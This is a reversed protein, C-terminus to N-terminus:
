DAEFDGCCKHCIAVDDQKIAVGINIRLCNNTSSLPDEQYVIKDLCCQALQKLSQNNNTVNETEFQTIYFVLVLKQIYRGFPVLVVEWQSRGSHVQSFFRYDFEVNSQGVILYKPTTLVCILYRCALEVRINSFYTSNSIHQTMLGTRFTELLVDTTGNYLSDILQYRRTDQMVQDLTGFTAYLQIREWMRRYKSSPICLVNGIGINLHGIYIMLNVFDNITPMSGHPGPVTEPQFIFNAIKYDVTQNNYYDLRSEHLIYCDSNNTDFGHILKSTLLILEVSRENALLWAVDHMNISRTLSLYTSEATRKKCKDLFRRVDLQNYRKIETGFDYGGSYHLAGEVVHELTSKFKSGPTNMAEALVAVQSATFGFMSAVTESRTMINLQNDNDRTHIRNANLSFTIMDDMDCENDTKLPYCFTGVIMCKIFIDSALLHRLLEVYARRAQPEWPTHHLVKFPSDYDDVLLIFRRCEANPLCKSISGLINCAMDAYRAWNDSDHAPDDFNIEKLWVEKMATIKTFEINEEHSLQAYEIENVWREIEQSLIWALRQSFSDWESIDNMGFNIFVVPYRGFHQHFFDPQEKLLLSGELLKMRNNIAVPPDFVSSQVHLRYRFDNGPKPMDDRTVINFFDAIVSM